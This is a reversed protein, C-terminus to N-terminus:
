VPQGCNPCFKEDHVLVFGCKSCTKPQEKGLPAGCALCTPEGVPNAAGCYDCTIRSLRESLQQSAGAEGTVRAIVQLVKENLQLNSVDQAIDDLRGLLNLPNILTAIATEGLSAAVGLWQQQGLEVMIGDEVKQINVTLATKGGSHSWQSSAIQITLNNSEGLLHTQTNGQNFEAQLAQAIDNPSINGHYIRRDM